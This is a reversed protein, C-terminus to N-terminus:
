AILNLFSLFNENKVIHKKKHTEEKTRQLKKEKSEKEWLPCSDIGTPGTHPTRPM